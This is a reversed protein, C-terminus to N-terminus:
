MWTRKGQGPLRFIYKNPLRKLWFPDDGPRVAHLGRLRNAFATRYGVRKLAAATERGSVGWPLCIHNVTQTRLRENLMARSSALEDEIARRQENDSEARPAPAAGAIATLRARWDPMAFFAAGGEKAVLGVCREHVREPWILRRADSMRSRSTFLPAGLDSPTVFTLQPPPELQPRGLLATDAYAPTVFGEIRTSCFVKAHSHSHSQVDILGSAHLERLERWTLFPSGVGDDQMRAPIAFVIASLGYQKLLPAAESGVSAWADDFCIAVCRREVTGRTVFREIDDSTITRYGNESLYRLKPELDAATEDHFHFVPLTDDTLGGGFVFRPFRGAVLDVAGRLVGGREGFPISM